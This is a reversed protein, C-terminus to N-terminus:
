QGSNAVAAENPATFDMDPSEDLMNAAENLQDSEDQPLGGTDGGGCASALALAMMAALIRM